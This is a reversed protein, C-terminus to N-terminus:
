ELNDVTRVAAPRREQEGLMHRRYLRSAAATEVSARRLGHRAAERGVKDRSATAATHLCGDEARCIEASDTIQTRVVGRLCDHAPMWSQGRIEDVRLIVDLRRRRERCGGPHSVYSWGRSRIPLVRQIPHWQDRIGLIRAGIGDY